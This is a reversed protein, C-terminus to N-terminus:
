EHKMTPGRYGIEAFAHFVLARILHPCLEDFTAYGKAARAQAMAGLTASECDCRVLEVDVLYDKGATTGSAVRYRAYDGTTRVGGPASWALKRTFARTNQCTADNGLQM